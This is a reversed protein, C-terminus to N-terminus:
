RVEVLSIEFILTAGPPIPPNADPRGQNGYALHAPITLRRTGGGLMGDFGKNWGQIVNDVKYTFVLPQRGESTDFVRGDTLSGTYNVTLRAGPVVPPGTGIELDEIIFDREVDLLEVELIITRNPPVSGDASGTIGYALNPPITLKRKGGVKMNQLGQELGILTCGFGMLLKVPDGNTTNLFEEGTKLTGVIHLTVTLSDAALAGEGEILDVILFPDDDPPPTDDSSDCGSWILLGALLLTPLWPIRKM